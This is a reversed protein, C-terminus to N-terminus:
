RFAMISEEGYAPFVVRSLRLFEDTCASFVCLACSGRILRFVNQPTDYRIHEKKAVYIGLRIGEFAAFKKMGATM